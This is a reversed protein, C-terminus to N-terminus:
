VHKCPCTVIINPYVNPKVKVDFALHMKEHQTWVGTDGILLAQHLDCKLHSIETHQQRFLYFSHSPPKPLSISLVLTPSWSLCILFSLIHSMLPHHPAPPLLQQTQISDCAFVSSIIPNIVKTLVNQRSTMEPTFVALILARLLTNASVCDYMVSM